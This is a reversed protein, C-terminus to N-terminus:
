REYILASRSFGRVETRAKDFYEVQLRGESLLQVLLFGPGAMGEGALSEGRRRDEEPGLLPYKVLGMEVSVTAPDPSGAPVAYTGAPAVTGGISIRVLKPKRVDYVFALQKRSLEPAGRSGADASLSEHFWNGVLRGRQDFDIKGDRDAGARTVKAYLQSKVPEVFLALPSVTQPTPAPYRQPNILGPLRVRTDYAGLDLSSRGSARGVVQGAKVRSGNGIGPELVLHALYYNLHEDARIEVKLDGVLQAIVGFVTGEAPARVPLGAKGGYDFYIHDTPFVHAHRPSLNGLPIIERVETPDLPSVTFVPNPVGANEEAAGPVPAVAASVAM